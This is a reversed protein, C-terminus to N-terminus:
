ESQKPREPATVQNGISAEDVFRALHARGRAIRSRVTGPPIGLVDAIEDYDLQCLDRLVVAARFDPSLQALAGDIELRDAIDGAFRDPVTAVPLADDAMAIPRRGKRRLEDLCANTTVRYIWTSFSSRGDFRTIGRCIAMLAEQTADDTDPDNAMVRRCLARVRDFHLQLLRELANRDGRRAADVLGADDVRGARDAPTM